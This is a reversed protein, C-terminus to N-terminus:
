LSMTLWEWEQTGSGNAAPNIVAPSIPTHHNPGHLVSSTSQQLGPLMPKDKKKSADRGNPLEDMPDGEESGEQFQNHIKSDRRQRKPAAALLRSSSSNQTSSNSSKAPAAAIPIVASKNNGQGSPTGM